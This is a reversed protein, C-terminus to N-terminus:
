SERRGEIPARAIRSGVEHSLGHHFTVSAFFALLCAWGQWYRVTGAPVFVLVPLLILMRILGLVADRNVRQM